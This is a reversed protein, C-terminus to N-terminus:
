NFVSVDDDWVLLLLEGHPCSVLLKRASSSFVVSLIPSLPHIGCDISNRVDCLAFLSM